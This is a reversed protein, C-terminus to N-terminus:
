SDTVLYSQLFPRLGPFRPLLAACGAADLHTEGKIARSDNLGHVTRVYYPQMDAIIRTAFRRNVKKHATMFPNYPSAAPAVLALGLNTFPVSRASFKPKDGSLDMTVGDPYSIFFARDRFGPLTLAAEAEARLLETFDLSLADDDDLVVQAVPTEAPHSSRVNRRFEMGASGPRRVLIRFRNGLAAKCMANLKERYVEPMMESTLIASRFGRDTQAALSPLTIAEFMALRSELREPALLKEPDTSAPSRWGSKGFYSFRTQYVIEIM